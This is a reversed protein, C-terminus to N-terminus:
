LLPPVRIGSCGLTGRMGFSGFPSCCSPPCPRAIRLPEPRLFSGGSTSTLRVGNGRFFWIFALGGRSFSGFASPSAVTCSSITQLNRPESAFRAFGVIQGVGGSCGIPRGFAIKFFLGRMISRRPLPGLGGCSRTCIQIFLALSNRRMHRPRPTNGTRRLTGLSITWRENERTPAPVVCWSFRASTGESPQQLQHEHGLLFGFYWCINNREDLSYFLYGTLQLQIYTLHLSRVKHKKPDKLAGSIESWVRIYVVHLHYSTLVFDPAKVVNMHEPEDSLLCKRKLIYLQVSIWQNLTVTQEHHFLFCALSIDFLHHIKLRYGIKVSSWIWLIVAVVGYM